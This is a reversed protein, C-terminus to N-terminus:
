AILHEEMEPLARWERPPNRSIFSRRWTVSWWTWNVFPRKARSTPCNRKWAPGIWRTMRIFRSAMDSCWPTIRWQLDFVPSSRSLFLLAVFSSLLDSRPHHLSTWARIRTTFSKPHSWESSGHTNSPMAISSSNTSRSCVTRLTQFALSLSFTHRSGGSGNAKSEIKRSRSCGGIIGLSCIMMTIRKPNTRRRRHSM